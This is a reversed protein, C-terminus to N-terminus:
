QGAQRPALAFDVGVAVLTEVDTAPRWMRSFMRNFAPMDTVMLSLGDLGLRETIRVIRAVRMDLSAAYTEAEARAKQLAQARAANRAAGDDALSYSPAAVTVDQAALAARVAALRAIDRITIRLTGMATQGDPGNGNFSGSAAAVILEPPMNGYNVGINVEGAVIDAPAIGAATLAATVRSVRTRAERLAVENNPGQASVLVSLSARDPASVIQGLTSTQLLVEEPALPATSVQATAPAPLAAGLALALGLAVLRM